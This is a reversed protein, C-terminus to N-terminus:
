KLPKAPNAAKVPELTAIKGRHGAGPVPDSHPNPSSNEEGVRTPKIQM